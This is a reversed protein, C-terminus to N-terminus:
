QKVARYFRAPSSVPEAYTFPVTTLDLNTIQIWNGAGLLTSSYELRYHGPSPPNITVGIYPTTTLTFLNTAPPVICQGAGPGGYTGIDNTVSGLSPPFYSDYYAPDGVGADICPSNTQLHFDSSSVFKPDQFINYLLDCPTGNRNVLLQMGYTPPYGVFNTANGFFDNYSVTTSNTGSRTVANTCGYIICSRIVADWRDSAAVGVGCSILTNNIMALAGQGAYTGATLSIAQNGIQTFINNALVCDAFGLGPYYGDKGLITFACGTDSSTIYCDKIVASMMAYYGWSTDVSGHGEGYVAQSICNSFNCCTIQVTNTPMLRHYSILTADM